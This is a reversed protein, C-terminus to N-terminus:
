QDNETITFSPRGPTTTIGDTLPATVSPAAHKWASMNLEPKWRFLTSLQETLGHEAALEQVRDSDVKRNMRGVVKVTFGNADITKTGEFDPAIDLADIMADELGRRREIAEQETRKAEIWEAFIPPNNDMM